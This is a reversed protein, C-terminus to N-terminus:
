VMSMLLAFGAVVLVGLAVAAAALVRQEGEIEDNLSRDITAMHRRVPMIVSQLSLKM